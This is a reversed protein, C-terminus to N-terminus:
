INLKDSAPRLSQFLSSDIAASSCDQILNKNCDGFAPAASVKPHSVQGTLIHIDGLAVSTMSNQSFESVPSYEPVLEDRSVPSCHCTNQYIVPVPLIKDIHNASRNKRFYRPM